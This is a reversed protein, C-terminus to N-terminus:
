FEGALAKMADDKKIGTISPCQRVRAVNDVLQNGNREMSTLEEVQRTNDDIVDDMICFAKRLEEKIQENPLYVNARRKYGIACDKKKNAVPSQSNIIIAEQASTGTGGWQQSQNKDLVKNNKGKKKAM